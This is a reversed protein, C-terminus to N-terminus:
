FAQFWTFYPDYFLACLKVVGVREVEFYTIQTLLLYSRKHLGDWISESSDFM